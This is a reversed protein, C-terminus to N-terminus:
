ENEKEWEEKRGMFYLFGDYDVYGYDGTHFWRNKEEKWETNGYYGLPIPFTSRSVIEGINKPGPPLVKGDKNVIKFEYGSVSTGVSGIKGGKSGVTNMTIGVAETLTWGEYLLVGFRNEFAKWTDKSAGYGFVWKLSHEKEVKSHSQEMLSELIDWYYIFGTINYRKIEDWFTLPDFKETIMISADYFIASLIAIIQGIGHCLPVPCYIVDSENLGIKVLEKGVNIGTLVLYNRWIVGKPRGTTGLTYLIEMPHWDKVIVNPNSTNEGFLDLFNLIYEDFNFGSPANRIFIKKINPLQNKIEEFNTLYQHDIILIETDSNELIYRLIEGKLGTNIPSFVGGAKVVGFWCFIFESCNPFILSIKPRKKLKLKKFLDILVHAVKNSQQNIDNFTYIEDKYYLFKHNGNEKAKKEILKPLTANEIGYTNIIDILVESKKILLAGDEQVEIIVEEKDSFPFSIDNFIKSPIYVWASDYDGKGSKRTTIRGKANTM